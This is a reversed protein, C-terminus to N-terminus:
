LINKPIFCFCHKGTSSLLDARGRSFPASLIPKFRLEHYVGQNQNFNFLLKIRVTLTVCTLFYQITQNKDFNTQIKNFFSNKLLFSSGM